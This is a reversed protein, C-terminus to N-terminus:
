RFLSALACECGRFEAVSQLAISLASENHCEALDVYREPLLSSESECNAFYGARAEPSSVWLSFCAPVSMEVRVGEDSGGDYRSVFLASTCEFFFYPFCKKIEILFLSMRAEFWVGDYGSPSVIYVECDSTYSIELRVYSGSSGRWWCVRQCYALWAYTERVYSCYAATSAMKSSELHHGMM